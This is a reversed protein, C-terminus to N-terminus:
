HCAHMYRRSTDYPRCLQHCECTILIRLPQFSARLALKLTTTRPFWIMIGKWVSSSKFDEELDAGLAVGFDAWVESPDAVGDAYPDSSTSGASDTSAVLSQGLQGPPASSRSSMSAMQMQLGSRSGKGGQSDGRSRLWVVSLWFVFFVGFCIAILISTNEDEIKCRECLQNTMHWDEDCSQCLVGAYGIPCGQPPVDPNMGGPCHLKPKSHPAGCDYMNTQSPFPTGVVPGSDPEYGGKTRAPIVFGARTQPENNGGSCFACPVEPEVEMDAPCAQCQEFLLPNTPTRAHATTNAEVVRRKHIDVWKQERLQLTSGFCTYLGRQTANYYGKACYCISNDEFDASENGPRMRDPCTVCEHRDPLRPVRTSPCPECIGFQSIENGTCAVCATKNANPEHGPPCTECDLGDAGFTGEPCEQCALSQRRTTCRQGPSCPWQECSLVVAAVLRVSDFPDYPEIVTGQFVIRVSTMVNAADGSLLQIDTDDEAQNDRFTSNLCIMDANRLQLAGGTGKDTTGATDFARNNRFVSAKIVIRTPVHDGGIAMMVGGTQSVCHAFECHEIYVNSSEAYIAGGSEQAQLNEFLCSVLQLVPGLQGVRPAAGGPTMQIAAGKGNEGQYSYEGWTKYNRFSVFHLALFSEAELVWRGNFVPRSPTGYLIVATQDMVRISRLNPDEGQWSEPQPTDEAFSLVWLSPESVFTTGPELELEDINRVGPPMTVAAYFQKIGLEQQFGMLNNIYCQPEQQQLLRSGPHSSHACPTMWESQSARLLRNPYLKKGFERVANADLSDSANMERGLDGYTTTAAPCPTSTVAALIRECTYNCAPGLAPNYYDVTAAPDYTIAVPDTCPVFDFTCSGDDDVTKPDYNNAEPITCGGDCERECGPGCDVMTENDSRVGDDCTGPVVGPHHGTAADPDRCACACVDKFDAIKHNIADQGYHTYMDMNDGSWHNCYDM